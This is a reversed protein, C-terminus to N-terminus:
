RSSAARQRPSSAPGRATKRREDRALYGFGFLALAAFFWWQLGYFFHPGEGLDPLETRSLPEQPAPSESAVDVFGGYVEFPLTAGIEVSSVARASQDAVQASDGTADARVWGEVTVEGSPAPPVDPRTSGVNDTPLWGRDVLLAVGSDTLLPTVVDVGSQGERTQYRVIVSEDEAYSGNATVRQWEHESSVPQGPALIQDVPVPDTALNRETVLSADERDALRHFQWEGLRFAFFALLAVTIGFLIWRRSLLFRM